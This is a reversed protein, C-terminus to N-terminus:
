GTQIQMCFTGSNGRAILVLLLFGCDTLFKGKGLNQAKTDVQDLLDGLMGFVKM